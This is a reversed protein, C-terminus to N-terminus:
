REDLVIGSDFGGAVAEESIKKTGDALLASIV